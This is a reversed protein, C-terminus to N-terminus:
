DMDPREHHGNKRNARLPQIGVEGPGAVDALAKDVFALANPAPLPLADPM